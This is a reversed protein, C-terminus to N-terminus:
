TVTLLMPVQARGVTLFVGLPLVLPPHYDLPINILHVLLSPFYRCLLVAFSLFLFVTLSRSLSFFLDFSPRPGLYFFAIATSLPIALWFDVLSFRVSSSFLAHFVLSCSCNSTEVGFGSTGMLVFRISPLFALFLPVRIDSESSTSFRFRLFKPPYLWFFEFFFRPFRLNFSTIQSALYLSVDVFRFFDVLHSARLVLQLISLSRNLLVLRYLFLFM